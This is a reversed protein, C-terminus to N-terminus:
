ARVAAITLPLEAPVIDCFCYVIRGSCDEAQVLCHGIRSVVDIVRRCSSIRSRSSISSWTANSVSAFARL